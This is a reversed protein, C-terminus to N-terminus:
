QWVESLPKTLVDGCLCLVICKCKIQFCKREIVGGLFFVDNRTCCFYM